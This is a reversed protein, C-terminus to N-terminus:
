EIFFGCVETSNEGVIDSLSSIATQVKIFDISKLKVPNGEKDIADTIRFYNKQVTRGSIEVIASDEGDNDAYGWSFAGNEWVGTSPNQRLREPLLSGYLTYSDEKIWLPYYFEQKHFEGLWSIKGSEGRSNIWRVDSFASEPRYYRVWFNREYGERGYYSGKLEYWEDDPLGNGDEDTMVWVIGPESSTDFANGAISFDYGGTNKIAVPAKVVIYGGWAGLSVYQHSSLRKRAYACAEEETLVNEFGSEKENIFQGPAPFYEMVKFETTGASGNNYDDDPDGLINEDRNCASFILCVLPLIKYFNIFRM